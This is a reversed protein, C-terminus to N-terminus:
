PAARLAPESLCWAKFEERRKVLGTLRKGGANVFDTLRNCVGYWNGVQAYKWLTTRQKRQQQDTYWTIGTCGVNFAVDTMAEFVRQPAAAGNFFRNVCNEARRMDNVWREAIEEDRYERQQVNATSGIGVTLVGAACYYPTKRCDEYQAMKLQAPQTTRLAQPWLTGALAIMAGVGCAIVRKKM